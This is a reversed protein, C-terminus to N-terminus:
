DGYIKVKAKKSIDKVFNGHKKTTKLSMSCVFQSSYQNDEQFSRGLNISNLNQMNISISFWMYKLEFCDSKNSM